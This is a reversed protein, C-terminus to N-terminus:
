KVSLETISINRTNLNKDICINNKKKIIAPIRGFNSEYTMYLIDCKTLIFFDLFTKDMNLKTQSRELHVPSKDIYIITPYTSIDIIKHITIDSTIFIKKNPYQNIIDIIIQRCRDINTGLPFHDEQPRNVQRNEEHMFVDGFRLQIGIFSANPIITNIQQTLIDRPILYVEFIKKFLIHTYEEYHQNSEYSNLFTWINQNTNIILTDCNFHEKTKNSFIEKLESIQHNVIRKITGLNNYKFFDHTTFDFYEQINSDHWKILLKCNFKDCLSLCSTIGIIRDGFGGSLTNPLGCEYVIYNMIIISVIDNLIIYLFM